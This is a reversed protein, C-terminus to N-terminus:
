RNVHNSISGEDREVSNGNIIIDLTVKRDLTIQHLELLKNSQLTFMAIGFQYNLIPLYQTLM